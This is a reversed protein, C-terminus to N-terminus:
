VHLTTQTMKIADGNDVTADTIREFTHRVCCEVYPRFPPLLLLSSLSTITDYSEDDNVHGMVM